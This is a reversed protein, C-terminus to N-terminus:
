FFHRYLPFMSTGRGGLDYLSDLKLSILRITLMGPENEQSFEDNDEFDQDQAKPEDERETSMTNDKDINQNPM